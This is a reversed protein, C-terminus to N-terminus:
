FKLCLTFETNLIGIVFFYLKSTLKISFIKEEREPLKKFNLRPLFTLYPSSTWYLKYSLVKRGPHSQAISSPKEPIIVMGLRQHHRENSSVKWEKAKQREVSINTNPTRNSKSPLAKTCTVYQKWIPISVELEVNSEYCFMGSFNTEYEFPLLIM